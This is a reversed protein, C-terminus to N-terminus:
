LQLISHVIWIGVYLSNNFLSHYIWIISCQSVIIFFSFFRQLHIHLSKQPISDLTSLWTSFLVQWIRGKMYTCPPSILLFVHKEENTCIFYLFSLVFGTLNAKLPSLTPFSHLSPFFPSHTTFISPSLSVKKTCDQSKSVSSICHFFTQSILSTSYDGNSLCQM